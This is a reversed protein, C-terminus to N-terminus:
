IKLIMKGSSHGSELSLHASTIEHWSIIKKVVSKLKGSISLHAIYDLDTPILKVIILKSKKGPLLTTVLQSVIHKPEPLTTLYCGQASLFRSCKWFSLKASADYIIDFVENLDELSQRNYDLVIDAGLSQVFQINHDGCFATVNAGLLKAMQVVYSGVGGGAGNVLVRSGSKIGGMRLGQIATIAAVPCAAADEFSFANPKKAIHNPKITIYESYSGTRDTYPNIAGFIEDGSHFHSVQNGVEVVTGSFDSGLSRPPRAVLFPITGARIKTDLPNLGAFHVKVLIENASPKPVDVNKIQMVDPSGYKEIIVSKM